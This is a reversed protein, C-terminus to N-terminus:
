SLLSVGCSKRAGSEDHIVLARHLNQSANFGNGQEFYIWENLSEGLENSDYQVASASGKIASMSIFKSEAKDKVKSDSQALNNIWPDNETDEGFLEKDWFHGQVLNHSSCTKGEHIHIGCGNTSYTNNFKQCIPPIGRM